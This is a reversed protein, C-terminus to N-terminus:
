GSNPQPPTFLPVGKQIADTIAFLVSSLTFRELRKKLSSLVSKIVGRRSAGKESKSTRGCKRAEAEGRFERESRNNTSEVRSDLVFVFYENSKEILQNQLRIFKVEEIPTVELIVGKKLAKKAKAESIIEIGAHHCIRKIRMKLRSVAQERETETLTEERSIRCSDYYVNFLAKVFRGYQRREPYRLSLEIAKRLPHSWCLQHREFIDDYVAYDDSVGTGAFKKGLIEELIDKGRGVGVKYFVERATNFVWTYCHKKGIKWGTEDIYLISSAAIIAALDHYEKEWDCVLQNLLSDAEGKSLHLGSFFELVGRSKDLSIGTEFVLFAVAIHIEIGFGSKANRVGEIKPLTKANPPAFLRYLIHKAQQGEFLRWVLQERHCICHQYQDAPLNDPYINVTEHVTDLKSEFSKRGANPRRRRKEKEAKADHSDSANSHIPKNREVDYHLTIKPAKAAKADAQNKLADELEKVRKRLTNNETELEHLKDSQNKLRESETQLHRLEKQANKLEKKLRVADNHLRTIEDDTNRARNELEAIRRQLNEVDM